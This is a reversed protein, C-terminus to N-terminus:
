NEVPGLLKPYGLIFRTVPETLVTLNFQETARQFDLVEGTKLLISIQEQRPDYSFNSTTDTFVFYDTDNESISFASRAKKRLSEVYDEKFPHNQMEIRYLQRRVLGNSLFSLIGDPHSCWVKIASFVDFDDLLTFQELATKDHVFNKRAVRNYLFYRLAPAGFLDQGQHALWKARRLIRILMAEASIVTKHLYVQWYMLRRAIIFKELSYIGKADIGLNDGIINMTKIIRDTNVIGEAVGCYFSDRRLYDLRDADLQGSVLQHLFARPHNGRFIDLASELCGGMTAALDRILIDSIVEHDISEIISNELAHSFPGHGIDHLLIAVLAAEEEPPTVDYGKSRLSEIAQKLLDMAGISHAFRTHLAGPYVLHTLGLQRIRRLRQFYPHEILRFIEESPITIIGSVPDSFLKRKDTHPTEM